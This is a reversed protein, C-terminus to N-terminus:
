ITEGPREFWRAIRSEARERYSDIQRALPNSETDAVAPQDALQQLRKPDYTALKLPSEMSVPISLACKQPPSIDIMPADSM